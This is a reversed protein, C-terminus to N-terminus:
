KEKKMKSPLETLYPIALGVILLVIGVIGQANFKFGAPFIHAVSGM